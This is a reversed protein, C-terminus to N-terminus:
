KSTSVTITGSSILPLLVLKQSIQSGSETFLYCKTNLDNQGTYSIHVLSADDTVNTITINNRARIYQVAYDMSRYQPGFRDMATHISSLMADWNSETIGLNQQHSFLTPLAMSTIARTLQRVAQAVSNEVDDNQPVWEYGDDDRIETVCNFFEFGGGSVYDAYYVPVISSSREVFDRNIRYPGSELWWDHYPSSFPMHTAIFEIGMNHMEELAELDLEYYHSVVYKSMTLQNTSYYNRARIVNDAPSFDPLLDHNFYIFTEYDFAHPSATALNNDILHKLTSVYAAPINDNFTGCWPIIGYENAIEVWRFNDIVDTGYGDVDDVRMTIMPPLGQMVFPKRAAWVFGRWFLDDMGYLPGLYNEYMWNYTNWKVIRGAGYESIELIAATNGGNTMTALNTGGTLSTNQSAPMQDRLTITGYNNSYPTVGNILPLNFQDSVHYETIFHTTNIIDIQNASLSVSSITSSITGTTNQFLLPDFSYLGTGADLADILDTVPYNGSQYVSYHGFMILAFNSFDPHGSPDPNDYEDFPIGFNLLFPKIYNVYDQYNPSSGNILVLVKGTVAPPVYTGSVNVTISSGLNNVQCGHSDTVSTLSYTYAGTTLIGTSIDDGNSYGTISPQAIGNREFAIVYPPLGGSIIVRFDTATNDFITINDNLQATEIPAYVSIFLAPCAVTMNGSTVVRRFYTDETLGQPSYDAGTAGTIDTWTISDPSSQWQFEYDGTGGSPAVTESLSVPATNYCIAQSSGASGPSFPVFVIDRFYMSEYYDFFPIQDAPTIHRGITYEIFSNTIAPVFNPESQAYYYNGAVNTISVMYRFTTSAEVRVPDPLEFERWGTTGGQFSWNFPGAILTFGSGSDLWLRIVHDGAELADTYLRVKQIYGDAHVKFETGMDYHVEENNIIYPTETTFLTIQNITIKVANTSSIGCLGDSVVRRFWRDTMLATPAYGASTAGQIDSWTLGDPSSQWQYSYTGSGGSAARSEQLAEPETGSYVTQAGQVAGPDMSTSITITVTNTVATSSLADTVRCRFSTTRGLLPPSYTTRAASSGTVDIWTTGNDNSRQWRYSYVPTGGSPLTVFTLASPAYGYCLNQDQGIVGPTLSQAIANVTFGILILIYTIRRM